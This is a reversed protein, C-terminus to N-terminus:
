SFYITTIATFVLLRLTLRIASVYNSTKGSSRRYVTEVSVSFDTYTKVWRNEKPMYYEPARNILCKM